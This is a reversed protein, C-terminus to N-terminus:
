LEYNISFSDGDEWARFKERYHRMPGLELEVVVGAEVNNEVGAILEGYYNVAVTHGEYTGFPDNGVRNVGVVYSQNEIARARLLADWVGLRSDDWSAVYIMLDFEDCGRSWVPFRLDYCILPIIRFGKYEFVVRKSGPTFCNREGGFSFLHRKDYYEASGDPKAFFLRNYVVEKGEANTDRIMTSGVVAKGSEKAVREFWLATPGDMTEAMAASTTKFGTTFMEPLVVIDAEASRIYREAKALNKEKECWVTDMQYLAIKLGM